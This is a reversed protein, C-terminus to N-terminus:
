PERRATLIRCLMARKPAFALRAKWACASDSTPNGAGEWVGGM